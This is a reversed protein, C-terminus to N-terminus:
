LKFSEFFVMQVEEEENDGDEGPAPFCLEPHEQPDRCGRPLFEDPKGIHRDDGCPPPFVIIIIM